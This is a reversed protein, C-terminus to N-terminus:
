RRKLVVRNSSEEVIKYDDRMSNLIGVGGAAVAIAIATTTTSIGLVGTAAFASTAAVPIGVGSSATGVAIIIAALAIGWAVTGTAKLKITKNALDGEIIIADEEDKMAQALEEETKVTKM